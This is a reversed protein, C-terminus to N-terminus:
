RTRHTGRAGPRPLALALEPHTRQLVMQTRTSNCGEDTGVWGLELTGTIRAPGTAWPFYRDSEVPLGSAVFSGAPHPPPQGGGPFDTFLQVSGGEDVQGSVGTWRKAVSPYEADPTKCGPVVGSITGELNPVLEGTMLTLRDKVDFSVAAGDPRTATYRLVAARARVWGTDCRRGPKTTVLRYRMTLATGAETFSGTLDEQVTIRRDQPHRFRYRYRLTGDRRNSRPRVRAMVFHDLARPLPQWRYARGNTSCREGRPYGFAANGSEGWFWGRKSTTFWFVWRKGAQTIIGDFLRSPKAPGFPGAPVIPFTPTQAFTTAAAPEASVLAVLAACLALRASRRVVASRENSAARHSWRARVSM